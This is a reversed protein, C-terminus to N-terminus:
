GVGGGATRGGTAGTKPSREPEGLFTAPNARSLARMHNRPGQLRAARQQTNASREARGGEATRLMPDTRIEAPRLCEKSARCKSAVGYNRLENKKECKGSVREHYGIGVPTYRLDSKKKRLVRDTDPNVTQLVNSTSYSHQAFM